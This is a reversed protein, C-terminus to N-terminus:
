LPPWMFSLQRGVIVSDTIGTSNGPWTVQVVVRWSNPTGSPALDTTTTIVTYVLDGQPQPTTQGSAYVARNTILPNSLATPNANAQNMIWARNTELEQQLIMAARGTYDARNSARWATPQLTLLGLLGVTILLVAILVEVLGIGKGCRLPSM